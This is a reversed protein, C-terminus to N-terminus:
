AKAAEKLPLNILSTISDILKQLSFPKLLIMDFEDSQLLWPTGSIGVVPISRNHSNRIHQVVGRGDIGPMCMDTIVMDFDGDNFKQIGEYGDAAIEVRHGFKTLVERILFLIGKEDDILLISCM